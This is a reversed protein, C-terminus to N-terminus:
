DREEEWVGEAFGEGSMDDALIQGGAGGCDSASQHEPVRRGSDVRQHAGGLQRRALRQGQHAMVDIPASANLTSIVVGLDSLLNRISMM